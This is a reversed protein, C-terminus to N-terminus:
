RSSLVIAGNVTELDIRPGGGGISGAMSSGVYRGKKVELGFDNSISGNVTEARVDASGSVYLEITGNVSSLSVDDVVTSPVDVEIRGNVTEIDLEGAAGRVVITGNVADADVGGEVGDVVLDGNVLDIGDLTAMRPVTLTYEVEAHGHRHEPGLDRSNPYRTDIYIGGTSADVEITLAALREPSSASKLAYVQVEPQDWVQVTVDGNINDLSVRVGHDVAYAQDFIETYEGAYAAAALLVAAVVTMVQKMKTEKTM